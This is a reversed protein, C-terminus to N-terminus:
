IDISRLTELQHFGSLLMSPSLWQSGSLARLINTQRPLPYEDRAHRCQGKTISAYEQKGNWYVVIVPVGWPKRIGFSEQSFWKDIQKDIDASKWPFCPLTADIDFPRRYNSAYKIDSYEGIRGDPFPKRTSTSSKNSYRKNHRPYDRISILLSPTRTDPHRRMRYRALKPGHPLDPQQDNTHNIKLYEVERKWLIPSRPQSVDSSAFCNDPPKPNYHPDTEIMGIYDSERFSIPCRYQEHCSYLPCSWLSGFGYSYANANKPCDILRILYPQDRPPDLLHIPIKKIMWPLVTQNHLVLVKNIGIEQKRCRNNKRHQIARARAQLAQVDLYSSEVSNDLLVQCGSRRIELQHLRKRLSHFLSYQDAFDNGLILPANM